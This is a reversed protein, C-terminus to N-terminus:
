WCALNERDADHRFSIDWLMASGLELSLVGELGLLKSAAAFLLLNLDSLCLALLVQGLPSTDAGALVARAGRETGSGVAVIVGGRSLRLYTAKRQEGARTPEGGKGKAWAKTKKAAGGRM